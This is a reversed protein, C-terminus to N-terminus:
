QITKPCTGAQSDHHMLDAIEEHWFILESFKKVTIEPQQLTTLM